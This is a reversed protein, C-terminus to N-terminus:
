QPEAEPQRSGMIVAQDQALANKRLDQSRALAKQARETQGLKRYALYLQYHVNGYHDSSAAKELRPVANATQGLRLYATGLWTNAEALSPQLRLARELYSVAKQNERQDMYARGLLYLTHARSGDLTLAKELESEAAEFNQDNLYLQGLAEHLEPENPHLELAAQLEKVAYDLNVGFAYREARLQYTRWSNPFSEELRAYTQAARAQYSRELWYSAQANEGAADPVQELTSAAQEYQQLAFYAKGLALREAGTVNSNGKLSDICRSYRHARCPDEKAHLTAHDANKQWAAVDNQFAKGERDARGADDAAL